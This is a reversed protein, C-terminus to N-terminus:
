KSDIRAVSIIQAHTRSHPTCATQPRGRDWVQLEGFGSVHGESAAVTVSIGRSILAAALWGPEGGVEAAILLASPALVLLVLLSGQCLILTKERKIM